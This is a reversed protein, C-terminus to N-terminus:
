SEWCLLAIQALLVHSLGVKKRALVIASSITWQQTLQPSIICYNALTGFVQYIVAPQCQAIIAHVVTLMALKLSTLYKWIAVSVFIKFFAELGNKGCGGCTVFPSVGDESRSLVSLHFHKGEKYHILIHFPHRWHDWMLVEGAVGSVGSSLHRDNSKWTPAHQM